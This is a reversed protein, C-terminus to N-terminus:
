EWISSQRDDKTKKRIFAKPDNIALNLDDATISMHGSYGSPDLKFYPALRRNLVFIKKRGIGEKSALTSKHFYGWEVGLSLVKDLNEDAESQLIFSIFRRESDDSLMKKQFLGGVANILNSLHRPATTNINKKHEETVKVKDLETLMFEESWDKLVDDQVNIPISNIKQNELNTRCESYMRSAPVLFYRIMGSSINVLNDFGSYSFTNKNGSLSKMYESMAYRAIDFSAKNAKGEGREWKEKIKHKIDEIKKKQVLNEPFFLKPDTCEINALQLRKLIISKVRSYYNSKTPTTYVTNIFVESYDHPCEILFGQTTRYTKYRLQTSVKICLEDDTRCSIWSNIIEQMDISLNDADDLLLFVPGDPTFSLKKILKALPLLFDIMGSLMGEYNYFEKTFSHRDLYKSVFIFQDDFFDSISDFINKSDFKLEADCRKVLNKLKNLFCDLEAEELSVEDISYIANLSTFIKQCINMVLMHESLLYRPSGTVRCNESVNLNERKLPIHVAYYDLECAKNVNNAEVQVTPELYRLMMSKGTGRPGHIFTHGKAKIKPFDSYVDVFLDAMEKDKLTEPTQVTFPNM